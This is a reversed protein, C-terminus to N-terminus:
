TNYSSLISSFLSMSQELTSVETNVQLSQSLSCFYRLWSLQNRALIRVLFWGFPLLMEQWVSIQTLTLLLWHWLVEPANLNTSRQLIITRVTVVTENQLLNLVAYVTTFVARYVSLESTVPLGSIDKPQQCNSVSGQQHWKAKWKVM